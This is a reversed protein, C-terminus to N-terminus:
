RRRAKKAKGKPAPEEPEFKQVTEPRFHLLLKGEFYPDDMVEELKFVRDPSVGIPKLEEIYRDGKFYLVGRNPTGEAGPSERINNFIWGLFRPLSTVARGTILDWKSKLSEARKHVVELNELKLEQAMWRLAEAKKSVSECLHFQSQPCCIALAMGPFGGGSGVDLVRHYPPIPVCALLSLSHILHHLELHQIDQRSVLNLHENFSRVLGLYHGLAAELKPDLAPLLLRLRKSDLEPEIPM